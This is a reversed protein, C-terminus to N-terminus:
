RFPHYGKPIINCKTRHYVGAAYIYAQPTYLFPYYIM